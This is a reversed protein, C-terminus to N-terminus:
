IDGIRAHSRPSTRYPSASCPCDQRPDNACRTPWCQYGTARYASASADHCPRVWPPRMWPPLPPVRKRECRSDGDGLREGTAALPFPIAATSRLHVIQLAADHSQNADEPENAEPDHGAPDRRGSEREREKWKRREKELLREFSIESHTYIIYAITQGGRQLSVMM